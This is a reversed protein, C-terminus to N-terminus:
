RKQAENLIEFDEASFWSSDGDLFDIEYIDEGEEYDTNGTLVGFRGYDHSDYIDIIQILTGSEFFVKNKVKKPLHKALFKKLIISIQSLFDGVM